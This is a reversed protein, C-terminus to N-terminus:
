KRLSVSYNNMSRALASLDAVSLAASVNNRLLATEIKGKGANLGGKSEPAAMSCVRM